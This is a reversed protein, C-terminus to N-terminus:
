IKVLNLWHKPTSLIELYLPGKQMTIADNGGKKCWKSALFLFFPSRAPCCWIVPQFLCCECLLIFIQYRNNISFKILIIQVALASTLYDVMLFSLLNILSHQVKFTLLSFKSSLNTCLKLMSMSKYLSPLIEKRYQVKLKEDYHLCFQQCYM